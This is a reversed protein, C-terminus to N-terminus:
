NLAYSKLRDDHYQFVRPGDYRILGVQPAYYFHEARNGGIRAQVHVVNNFTGAPVTITQGVAVVEYDHPMPNGNPRIATSSWQQGVSPQDVMYQIDSGMVRKYYKGQDFRVLDDGVQFYVTSDIITTDVHIVTDLIIYNTDWDVCNTAYIEREYVWQSEQGFPGYQGQSPNSQSSEIPHTTNILAEKECAWLSLLVFTSMIIWKM